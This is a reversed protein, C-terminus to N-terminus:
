ALEASPCAFEAQEALSVKALWNELVLLHWIQLPMSPQSSASEVVRGLRQGNIWGQEAILSGPGLQSLQDRWRIALWREIPITFGRKPREAIDKGLHRRALERLVAKLKGGHLRVSEPISLALEAMRYDLFPSRAEIGCFLTTGDVKPLYEGRFVTRLDYFILDQLLSKASAQSLPIRRSAITRGELRKGLLGAREFYPLGDHTQTVAGLGGTAYDMLHKPRRLADISNVLPRIAKWLSATGPPLCRAIRQAVAMHNHYPYGLFLDDGGDGTLLVKAHPRVAASVQLMGLASACTFPESYASTLDDISVPHDRSLHVIQHDIGLKRATQVAADTEDSSEGPTGVTFARVSSHLRTLAWCVLASDIGGSLLAGVPVDAVLRQRVADLLLAETEDVAQQFTIRRLPVDEACWYTETRIEDGDLVLITAPPLKQLGNFICTSDTPWGFELVELIAEPNIGSTFGGELLAGPTSAFAIGDPLTAYVLPKVGLRDRVLSLTRAGADWIAFAFMGQLRRTLRSIGWARYGHLLVETDCSSKFHFGKDQLDKRLELYNYICGNFVLGVQRDATLMPQHGSPSLDLIALRRHGLAAGRWLELGASDPGRRALTDTMIQVRKSLENPDRDAIFGAIGCMGAFM